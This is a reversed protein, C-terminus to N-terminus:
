DQLNIDEATAIVQGNEIGTFRVVAFAPVGEEKLRRYGIQPPNLHLFDKAVLFVFIPNIGLSQLGERFSLAVNGHASFDDVIVVNEDTPRVGFLFHEYQIGKTFSPVGKIIVQDNEEDYGAELSNTSNSGIAGQARRETIAISLNLELGLATAFEKGRNSVGIVKQPRLEPPLHDLFLRRTVESARKLIEPSVVWNVESCFVYGIEPDRIEAKSAIRAALDKRMQILDERSTLKEPQSM